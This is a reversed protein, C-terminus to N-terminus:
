AFYYKNKLEPTLFTDKVAVNNNLIEIIIRRSYKNEEAYTIIYEKEEYTLPFVFFHYHEISKSLKVDKKIENYSVEVASQVNPSFMIPIEDSITKINENKSPIKYCFAKNMNLSIKPKLSKIIDSPIKDNNSESILKYVLEITKTLKRTTYSKDKDKINAQNAITEFVIDVADEIVSHRIENYRKQSLNKIVESM